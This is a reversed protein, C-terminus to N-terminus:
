LSTIVNSPEDLWVRHAGDATTTLGYQDPTPRGASIWGRYADDVESWLHRPGLQHVTFAAERHMTVRAWSGSSVDHM